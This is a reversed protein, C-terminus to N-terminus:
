FRRLDEYSSAYDSPYDDPIDPTVPAPYAIDIDV